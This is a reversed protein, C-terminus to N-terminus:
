LLNKIKRVATDAFNHAFTKSLVQHQNFKTIELRSDFLDFVDHQKFLDIIHHIKKNPTTCVDYEQWIQIGHQALTNPLSDIPYNVVLCGSRYAKWTKESIFHLSDYDHDPAINYAVTEATINVCASYAAHDNQQSQHIYTSNNPIDLYQSKNSWPLTSLLKNYQQDVQNVTNLRNIVVVDQDTIWPQIQSFLQLRYDKAIGSLFSIRHQPDVSTQYNREQQQNILWFPWYGVRDHTYVNARADCGLIFFPVDTSQVLDAALQDLNNFPNTDMCIVPIRHTELYARQLLQCQSHINPQTLFLNEHVFTLNHSLSDLNLWAFQQQHSGKLPYDLGYYAPPM